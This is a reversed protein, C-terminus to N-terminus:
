KYSDRYAKGFKNKHEVTTKQEQLRLERQVLVSGQITISERSEGGFEHWTRLVYTGDPIDQIVFLGGRDTLAYFPNELVVITTAMQPHINCFAKVIGARGFEVSESKGPGYAGLDFPQTTSLSFVNHFVLDDNPFEVTSGLEVPLVRPDFCTDKQSIRYTRRPRPQLATAPVGDLFAVVNSRDERETGDLKLLTVQGTITNRRAPALGREDNGDRFKVHCAVCTARLDERAQLARPLDGARALSGIKKSLAVAADKYGAFVPLLQANREPTIPGLGLAVEQIRDASEAVAAANGADFAKELAQLERTLNAMLREPQPRTAFLLALILLLVRM